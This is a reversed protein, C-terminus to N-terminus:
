INRCDLAPVLYIYINTLSLDFLFLVDNFLNATAFLESLAFFESRHHLLRIQLWLPHDNVSLKNTLPKSNRSLMATASLIIIQISTHFRLPEGLM